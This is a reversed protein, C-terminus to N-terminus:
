RWRLIDALRECAQKCVLSTRACNAATEMRHNACEAACEGCAKACARLLAALARADGGCYRSAVQATARCVDACDCCVLECARFTDSLGSAALTKACSTSADACDRCLEVLVALQNNLSIASASPMLDGSQRPM